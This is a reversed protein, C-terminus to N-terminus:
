TRGLRVPPEFSPAAEDLERILAREETTCGARARYPVVVGHLQARLDDWREHLVRWHHADYTGEFIVPRIEIRPLATASSRVAEELERAWRSGVRDVRGIQQEVVGPNWEPHLLIVVRCAQHLNLGERGVLSQAVLVRPNSERRNFALQLARRTPLATAGSMLRAFRGRETRYEDRLREAIRAWLAGAEDADLAGDGDADGEGRERLAAVLSVFAEAVAEASPGAGSSSTNGTTESRIGYDLLQDLAAALIVRDEELGVRAAEALAHADRELPSLGEAIREFLAARLAERRRAIGAYQRALLADLAAKDFAGARDLQRHAAETAAADEAAVVSQPWPRGADLARLMARANLLAVLARMPETFRGFVLVKEGGADYAEIATVAALIAPHDYLAGDTRAVREILRQWWAARAIRKTESEETPASGSGPGVSPEGSAELDPAPDDLQRVADEPSAASADLRTAIGHGNGFTLRLRKAAPDDRGRVVFSLAEAACVARRWGPTLGAPVVALDRQWRYADPDQAEGALPSQAGEARALTASRYAMVAEDGRKDRRLVYPKLAAEFAHAAVVYAARAEASSRWGLRARRVAEGYREVIGRIEARAAPEVQVRALAQDWDRTGLEVPTATMCLRRADAGEVLTAELLRSLGGDEARSKHAEDVIVLDFVGLGLGVARQLMQRPAGGQEYNAAANAGRWVSESGLAEYHQRVAPDSSVACQAAIAEAAARAWWDARESMAKFGHPFQRHLTHQAYGALMPLLEFRWRQTSAGLRWNAFGHAVLVVPQDFWPRAPARHDWAALFGWLSRVADPVDPVGGHRLEERWQFGLTPPILIAVRGGAEVVARALAVAIRTKGMGVEDAIVLGHRPLREALAYLSDRQSGNLQPGPADALARVQDGVRDWGAFTM